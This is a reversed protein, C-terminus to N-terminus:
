QSTQLWAFTIAGAKIQVNSLTVHEGNIDAAFHCYGPPLGMM